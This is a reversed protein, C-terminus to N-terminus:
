LLLRTIFCIECYFNCLFIDILMYIVSVVIERFGELRQCGLGTFDRYRQPKPVVESCCTICNCHTEESSFEDDQILEKASQGSLKLSWQRARWYM